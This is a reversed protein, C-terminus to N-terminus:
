YYRNLLRAHQYAKVQQEIENLQNENLKELFRLQEKATRQFHNCWNLIRRYCDVFVRNEDESLESKDFLDLLEELKNELTTPISSCEELPGSEFRGLVLRKYDLDNLSCFYLLRPLRSLENELERATM